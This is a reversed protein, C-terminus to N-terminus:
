EPQSDRPPLRPLRRLTRRFHAVLNTLRKKRYGIHTKTRVTMLPQATGAVIAMIAGLLLIGKEKGTTYRYLKGLGVKVVTKRLQRDLIEQENSMFDIDVDGGAWTGTRLPAFVPSEELSGNTLTESESSVAPTAKKQSQSFTSVDEPVFSFGDISQQRSLRHSLPSVVDEEVQLSTFHSYIRPEM